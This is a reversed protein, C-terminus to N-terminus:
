VANVHNKFEGGCGKGDLRKLCLGCFPLNRLQNLIIGFSRMQHIPNAMRIWWSKSCHHHGGVYTMHNTSGYGGQGGVNGVVKWGTAFGRGPSLRHLAAMTKWSM